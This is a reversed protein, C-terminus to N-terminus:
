RVYAIIWFRFWVMGGVNREDCLVGIEGLKETKDEFREMPMPPALPESATPGIIMWDFM